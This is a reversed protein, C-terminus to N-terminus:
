DEYLAIEKFRKSDVQFIKNEIDVKVVADKLFPFRIVKNESSIATIIDTRASTIESIKAIEKGDLIISCGIIDVIFYRGEELCNNDERKIRLFKGRFLEATNRDNVGLISLFVSDPTIKANTVTFTDGDIIVSKLKRFRNADDTLPRIKLEGKIGQPKLVEGIIFTNEM